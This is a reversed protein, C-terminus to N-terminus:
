RGAVGESFLIEKSKDRINKCLNNGVVALM